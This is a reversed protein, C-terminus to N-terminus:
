QTTPILCPQYWYLYHETIALKASPAYATGACGPLVVRAEKSLHLFLRMAWVCSPLSSIAGSNSMQEVYHMSYPQSQQRIASVDSPKLRRCAYVLFLIM